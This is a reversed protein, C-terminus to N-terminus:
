KKKSGIRFGIRKQTKSKPAMLQRIADFVIKFQQDYHGEFAALRRKLDEHEALIGRLRVFARMIQINVQVARKSRLVSSLMAVGQETFAYPPHRRGGWSSSSVAQSRLLDFEEKTLQFMFDDPFRDLNRKVAQVLVRTERSPNPSGPM